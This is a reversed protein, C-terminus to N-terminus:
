PIVTGNEEQGTVVEKVKGPEQAEVSRFTLIGSSLDRM